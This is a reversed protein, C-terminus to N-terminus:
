SVPGNMLIISPIRKEAAGDVSATPDTTSSRVAHTAVLPAGAGDMAAEAVAVGAGEAVGRVGVGLGCGVGV